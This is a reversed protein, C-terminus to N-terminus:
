ESFILKTINLSAYTGPGYNGGLLYRLRFTHPSGIAAGVDHVAVNTMTPLTAYTVTMLGSTVNASVSFNQPLDAFAAFTNIDRVVGPTMSNDNVFLSYHYIGGVFGDAANLTIILNGSNDLVDMYMQSGGGSTITYSGLGFYPYIVTGSLVWNGSNNRTITKSATATFIVSNGARFYIDPSQYPAIQQNQFSTGCFVQLSGSNQDTTPNRVWGGAGSTLNSVNFPLGSLL